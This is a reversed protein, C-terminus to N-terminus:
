NAELYAARIADSLEASEQLFGTLWRHVGTALIEGVEGYELSLALRGALQKVQRGADLSGSRAEIQPLIARIEDCCARLSRPVDPRLILLETVRRSDLADRYVAHYAEFASLSRLLASWAYFDPASEQPVDVPMLSDVAPEILQSKVDLLRATNDAREIFTGLRIFCYADNRQLTGYTAGRFLHSREKVWDFFSSVSAIGRKPFERGELWTSNIAEWMEATIQGRVAHANERASRLCSLVSAPNDLDLAMFNFLREAELPQQSATFAELTGTVALPAALETMAGRSQPLLSLSHTVDLMRVLNEAREVYRSMWYLQAATRSLM